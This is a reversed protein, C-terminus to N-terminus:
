FPAAQWGTVDVILHAAQSAVVCVTTSTLGVVAGNSTAGGPRFNLTSVAPPSAAASACPWITLYGTATNGVVTVNLIASNAVGNGPVGGRMPLTLTTVVGAALPTITDAGALVESTGVQGGRTDRVRQRRANRKVARVTMREWASGKVEIIAVLNDDGGVQVFVDMRGGRGNPKTCAHEKLVREGEANALWDAQM